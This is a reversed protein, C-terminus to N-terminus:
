FIEVTAGVDELALKMEIATSKLVRIYPTTREAFDKSEKLGMGTYSRTHKIVWILNPGANIIRIRVHGDGDEPANTTPLSDLIAPIKQALALGIADAPIAGAILSLLKSAEFAELEIVIKM